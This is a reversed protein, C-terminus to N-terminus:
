TIHSSMRSIFDIKSRFLELVERLRHQMDLHVRREESLLVRHDQDAASMSASFRASVAHLEAVVSTAHKRERALLRKTEVLAERHLSLQRRLDDRDKRLTAAMEQSRRLEGAQRQVKEGLEAVRTRIASDTKSRSNKRSERLKEMNQVTEQLRKCRTKWKVITQDEREQCSIVKDEAARKEKKLTDITNRLETALLKHQKEALAKNSHLAALLGRGRSTEEKAGQLTSVIDSTKKVLTVCQLKTLGLDGTLSKVRQEFVNRESVAQKRRSDLDLILTVLQSVLTDTTRAGHARGRLIQRVLSETGLDMASSQRM